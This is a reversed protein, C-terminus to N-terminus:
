QEQCTDEQNHRFIRHLVRDYQRINLKEAEGGHIELVAKIISDSSITTLDQPIANPHIKLICGSQDIFILDLPVFTNKMWFRAVQPESFVFLMGTKEPIQRRFMFGKQSETPTVAMEVLYTVVEQEAQGRVISLNEVKMGSIPHRQGATAVSFDGFFLISLLLITLNRRM